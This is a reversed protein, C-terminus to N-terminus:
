KGRREWDSRFQNILQVLVLTEMNEENKKILDFMRKDEMLEELEKKRINDREKLNKRKEEFESLKERLNQERIEVEKKLIKRQEVIVVTSIVGAVAAGTAAYVINDKLGM